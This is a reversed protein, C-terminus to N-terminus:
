ASPYTSDIDPLLPLPVIPEPPEMGANVDPEFRIVMADRMMARAGIWLQYAPSAYWRKFQLEVLRDRPDM